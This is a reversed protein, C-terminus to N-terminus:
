IVIWVPTSPVFQVEEEEEDVEEASSGELSRFRGEPSEGGKKKPPVAPPPIFSRPSSYDPDKLIM